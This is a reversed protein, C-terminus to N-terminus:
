GRQTKKKEKRVLYYLVWLSSSIFFATIAFPILPFSTHKKPWLSNKKVFPFIALSLDLQDVHGQCIHTLHSSLEEKKEKEGWAPHVNEDLTIELQLASKKDEQIHHLDLHFHEKGFVKVLLDRIKLEIEEEKKAEFLIEKKESPDIFCYLSGRTDSVAIMNPELGRVAGCLHYIVAHLQSNTLKADQPLTLIVSAKTLSPTSSFSRPPALDLIM